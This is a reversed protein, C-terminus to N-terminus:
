QNPASWGKKQCLTHSIRAVATGAVRGNGDQFPHTAEM